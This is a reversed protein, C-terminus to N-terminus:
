HSTPPLFHRGYFTMDVCLLSSRHWWRLGNSSPPRIFSERRIFLFLLFFRRDAAAADYWCCHRYPMMSHSDDSDSVVFFLFLFSPDNKLFSFEIHAWVSVYSPTLPKLGLKNRKKRWLLYGSRRKKKFARARAYTDLRNLFIKEAM